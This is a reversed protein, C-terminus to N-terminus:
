AQVSLEPKAVWAFGTDALITAVQLPRGCLPVGIAFTSWGITTDLIYVAFNIADQVPMGDFLVQTELGEAELVSQIDEETLGKETLRPPIVYADFGKYLRIFPADVGRWSAGFSEAERARFPEADRPLVFEFEEPFPEGQTYGAVYFGLVPRLEDAFEGFVGDYQEKVYDFLGQATSEVSAAGANRSFDLVLGEISRNGINGLGYTMVGIPADAVQFLKRANSYAKLVTMGGEPMPASIQTMSDTGLILGDRVKVSAIITV